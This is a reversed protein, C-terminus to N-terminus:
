PLRELVKAMLAKAGDLPPTTSARDMALSVMWGPRFVWLTTTEAHWGAGPGHEAVPELTYGPMESKVGELYGQLGAAPDRVHPSRRVTLTTTMLAQGREAIYTCFSAYTPESGEGVPGPMERPETRQVPAGVVEAVEEQTLVNCAVVQAAPAADAQAEEREPTDSGGCAAVLLALVTAPIRNM